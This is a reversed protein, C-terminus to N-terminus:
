QNGKVMRTVRPAFEYLHVRGMTGSKAGTRVTYDVQGKFDIADVRYVWGQPTVYSNGKTIDATKM